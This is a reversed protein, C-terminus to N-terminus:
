LRLYEQIVDRVYSKDVDVPTKSLSVNSNSFYKGFLFDRKMSM